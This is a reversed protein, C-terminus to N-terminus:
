NQWKLVVKLSGEADASAIVIGSKASLKLGIELSIEKPANVSKLMDMLASIAPKVAELAEEMSKAVPVVHDAPGMKAGITDSPRGDDDVEVLVTNNGGRDVNMEVIRRM